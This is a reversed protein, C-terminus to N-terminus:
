ISESIQALKFDIELIRQNVRNEKMQAILNKDDKLLINSILLHSDVYMINKFDTNLSKLNLATSFGVSYLFKLKNKFLLYEAPINEPALDIAFYIQKNLLIREILNKYEKIKISSGYRQKLLISVNTVNKANLDKGIMHLIQQLYKEVHENGYLDLREILIVVDYHITSFNKSYLSLRSKFLDLDLHYFVNNNLVKSNIITIHKKAPWRYISFLQKLKILEYRKIKKLLNLRDIWHMIDSIGHEVDTINQPKFVARLKRLNVRNSVVIEEVVVSEMKFRKKVELISQQKKYDLNEFNIYKKEIKFEKWHELILSEYEPGDKDSIFLLIRYQSNLKQFKEQLYCSM